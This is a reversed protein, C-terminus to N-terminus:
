RRVEFEEYGVVEGEKIDVNDVRSGMPGRKCWHILADLAAQEAEAELYVTGDAVNMVYGNVGLAEAKSKASARYFVGQVKGSITVNYHKIM